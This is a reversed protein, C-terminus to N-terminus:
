LVSDPSRDPAESGGHDCSHVRSESESEDSEAGAESHEHVDPGALLPGEGRSRILGRAAHRKEAKGPTPERFPVKSFLITTTSNKMQAKLLM